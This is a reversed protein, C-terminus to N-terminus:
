SVVFEFEDAGGPTRDIYNQTSGPGFLTGVCGIVGSTGGSGGTGRVKLWQDMQELNVLATVSHNAKGGEISITTGAVTAFTGGETPSTQVVAVTPGTYGNAGVTFTLRLWSFGKTNIEGSSANFGITKAVTTPPFLLVERASSFLDSAAM